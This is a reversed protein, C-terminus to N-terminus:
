GDKHLFNEFLKRFECNASLYSSRDRFYLPVVLAVVWVVDM